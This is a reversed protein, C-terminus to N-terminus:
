RSLASDEEGEDAAAANTNDKGLVANQAIANELLAKGYLFLLDASEPSNEGYKELRKENWFM